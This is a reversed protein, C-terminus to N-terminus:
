HPYKEINLNYIENKDIGKPKTPTKSGETKIKDKQITHIHNGPAPESPPPRPLKFQLSAPIRGVHSILLTGIPKTCKLRVIKNTGNYLAIKSLRKNMQILMLEPLFQSM